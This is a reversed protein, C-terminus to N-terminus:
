RMVMPRFLSAVVAAKASQATSLNEDVELLTTPPIEDLETKLPPEASISDSSDNKDATAIEAFSFLALLLVPWINILLVRM